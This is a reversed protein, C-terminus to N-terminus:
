PTPSATPTPILAGEQLARQLFQEIEPRIVPELMIWAAWGVIVVLLFILFYELRSLGRKEQRFDV